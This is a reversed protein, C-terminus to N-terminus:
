QESAGVKEWRARYDSCLQSSRIERFLCYGISGLVILAAAGLRRDGSTGAFAAVLATGWIWKRPDHTNRELGDGSLSRMRNEWNPGTGPREHFVALYAAIRVIGEIKHLVLHLYTITAFVLGLVLGARAEVRDATLAGLGAIAVFLTMAVHFGQILRDNQSIEARLSRYEERAGDDM